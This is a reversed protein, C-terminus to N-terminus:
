PQPSAIKPLNFLESKIINVEDKNFDGVWAATLRVKFPSNGLSIVGNIHMMSHDSSDFVAPIQAAVTRLVAEMVVSQANRKRFDVDNASLNEVKGKLFNKASRAKVAYEAEHIHITTSM